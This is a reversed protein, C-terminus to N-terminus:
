PVLNDIVPPSEFIVPSFPPVTEMPPGIDMGFCKPVAMPTSLAVLRRRVRPPRDTPGEGLHCRDVPGALRRRDAQRPLGEGRQDIDQCLRSGQSM